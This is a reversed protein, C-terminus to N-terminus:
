QKFYWVTYGILIALLIILFLGGFLIVLIIELEKDTLDFLNQKQKKKNEDSNSEDDDNKIITYTPKEPEKGTFIPDDWFAPEDEFIILDNNM